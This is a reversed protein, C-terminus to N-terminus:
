TRREVLLAQTGGGLVGLQDGLTFTTVGIGDAGLDTKADLRVWDGVAYRHIAISLSPPVFLWETFPLEHSVGNASDALLMVRDLGTLPEGAVLPIRARAWVVAPGVDRPTGSEYRWESADAYGWTGAAIGFLEPQVADTLQQPVQSLAARRELEADPRVAIRWVRVAVVARGEANELTADLMEIRKGPRVLATKVRLVGKPIPGLFDANVRAVRVDGRPHARELAHVLLATPPSGHQLRRDWPSETARTASYRGDGLHEYYGPETMESM